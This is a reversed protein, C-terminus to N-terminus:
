EEEFLEKPTCDIMLDIIDEGLFIYAVIGGLNIILALGSLIGVLINVIIHGQTIFCLRLFTICGVSAMALLAIIFVLIGILFRRLDKETRIEM